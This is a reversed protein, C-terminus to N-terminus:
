HHVIVYHNGLLVYISFIVGIVVAAIWLYKGLPDPVPIASIIWRVFGVVLWIILLDIVINILLDM